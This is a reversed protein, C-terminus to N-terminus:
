QELHITQTPFAMSIDEENFKKHLKLNIEQQAALADEYDPSDVYYVVEFKLSSDEFETFYVREFEIGDISKIIDKVLSQIKELTKTSTRYVVGFEFTRRRREMKKYNRIRAKTLEKNSIVLEEGEFLTKLRTSKLGISQVTGRNNGVEIFDGPEFPKDFYISFASFLDELISRLAFAIAIGSIGVGALLSSINYGLNSLVLLLAIIWLVGKSFKILIKIISANEDKGNTRALSKIGYTILVNLAKTINFVVVILTIYYLVSSLLEPIQLFRLGLQLAILVYFLLGINQVAKVIEDDLAATSREAWNGLKKIIILKFIYLVILIGGFTGLAWLYDQTTNKLVFDPLTFSLEFM